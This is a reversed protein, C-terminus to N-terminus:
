GGLEVAWNCVPTRDRSNGKVLHHMHRWDDREEDSHGLFVRSFFVAVTVGNLSGCQRKQKGM